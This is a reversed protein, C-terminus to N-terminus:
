NWVGGQTYVTAAKLIPSTSLSFSALLLSSVIFKKM